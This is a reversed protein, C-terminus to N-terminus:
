ASGFLVCINVNGELILGFDVFEGLVIGFQVIQLVFQGGLLVFHLVEFLSGVFDFQEVFVFLNREDNAFNEKGVTQGLRLLQQGLGLRFLLRFDLPDLLLTAIQLSQHTFQFQGQILSESAVNIQLVVFLHISVYMNTTEIAQRM